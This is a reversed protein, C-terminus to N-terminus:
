RPQQRRWALVIWIVGLALFVVGVLTEDTALGIVGVALWGAGVVYWLRQVTL